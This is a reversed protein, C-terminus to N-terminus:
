SPGQVPRSGNGQPFPAEAPPPGTVDDPHVGWVLARWADAVTELGYREAIWRQAADGTGDRGDSRLELVKLAAAEADPVIWEDAWLARVGAREFILPAAKSAMGEALALHFSEVDSPSLIYGIDRLWADVDPGAEVFEVAGRLAPTSEIRAFQRELWRSDDFPVKTAADRPDPGKCSLRFGPDTRRVIELVDLARDLRKLRRHYQLLGLTRDARPTKPLDYRGVDVPNPVVLCREAPWGFKGAAEEAFHDGVFVFADVAVAPVREPQATDLEYRHFHVLLRQRPEVREAYWAANGLCWEAIVVDAWRVLGGSRVEDHRTQGRWEDIEIEAGTARLRDVVPLIFQLKQGAVVVRPRHMPATARPPTVM